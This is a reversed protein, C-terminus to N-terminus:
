AGVCTGGFAGLASGGPCTGSICLTVVIGDSNLGM